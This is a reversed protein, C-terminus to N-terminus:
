LLKFLIGTLLSLQAVALGIMWKILDSKAEAIERRLEAELLKLDNKTAVEIGQSAERFAEAIGKAQSEPIGSAKLREVFKLTDFMVGAMPANYRIGASSRPMPGAFPKPQTNQVNPM